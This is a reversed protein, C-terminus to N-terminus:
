RPTRLRAGRLDQRWSAPLQYMANGYTRLIKRKYQLMPVAKSNHHHVGRFAELCSAPRGGAPTAAASEICRCGAAIASDHDPEGRLPGCCCCSRAPPPIGPSDLALLQGMRLQLPEPLGWMDEPARFRHQLCEEPAPVPAQLSGRPSDSM